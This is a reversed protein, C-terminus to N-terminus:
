EEMGEEREERGFGLGEALVNGKGTLRKRIVESVRILDGGDEEITWKEGDMWFSDKGM